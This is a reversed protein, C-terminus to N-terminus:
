DRPPERKSSRSSSILRQALEILTGLATAVDAWTLRFRHALIIAAILLIVLALALDLLDANM